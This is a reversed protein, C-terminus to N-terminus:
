YQKDRILIENGYNYKPILKNDKNDIRFITNLVPILLIYDFMKGDETYSGIICDRKSYEHENEYKLTLIGLEYDLMRVKGKWKRGDHKLIINISSTELSINAIAGNPSENRFRNDSEKMSYSPWDYVNKASKLHKYKKNFRWRKIYDTILVFLFSAIIGIILGGFLINLFECWSFNCIM